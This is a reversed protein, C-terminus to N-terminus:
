PVSIALVPRSERRLAVHVYPALSSLMIQASGLALFAATGVRQARLQRHASLSVANMASIRSISWEVGASSLIANAEDWLRAFGLGLRASPDVYVDFDWAARESPRPVFLCRVEDEEYPGTIFWLCGVFRGQSRAVLCRAGQAFRQALIERPRAIPLELAEQVGVESVEISRGRRAPLLPKDAVPQAILHYVHLRARRASLKELARTCIYLTAGLPGFARLESGWRRLGTLM